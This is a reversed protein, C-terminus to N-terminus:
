CHLCRSESQVGDGDSDDRRRSGVVVFRAGPTSLKGLHIMQCVFVEWLLSTSAFHM